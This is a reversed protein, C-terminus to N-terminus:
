GFHSFSRSDKERDKAHLSWYRSSTARRNYRGSRDSRTSLRQSRWRTVFSVMGTFLESLREVTYDNLIDAASVTADRNMRM